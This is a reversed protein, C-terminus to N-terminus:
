LLYEYIMQTLNSINPMNDKTEFTYLISKGAFYGNEEYMSIKEVARESYEPTDMMGMHEFYFEKRLRVNLVKFDPYIKRRNKLTLEPEYIYPVGEKYFKDAIIKESKSRVHEGKETYINGQIPYSNSGCNAASLWQNIYEQDTLEIPTILSQKSESFSRYIKSIIKENYYGELEKVKDMRTNIEKLLKEDYERQVLTKVIEIDKQPVYKGNIYCQMYKGKSKRIILNGKPIEKIRSDLSNRLEKLNHLEDKLAYYFNKNM